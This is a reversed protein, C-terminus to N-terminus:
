LSKYKKYWSVFNKIGEDLNVKPEFGLLNRAESIDAYTEPVDGPQIPMFNIKATVGLEKELTKIFDMLEVTQSNGLNFIKFGMPKELAKIFGDVIDDVYTFNRRMKGDNYVDISEGKLMKETFIFLAMDPRGWPGYVTFFRLCTANIAYLHSYNACLLECGRKTAAYISMPTTVPNDEKFPMEKSTGYVSSTSAFLIHLIKYKKVNELVNFTGVYNTQVYVEPHELSYRVGAQAALHCVADFEGQAFVAELAVADTIDVRHVLVSSDFRKLRNEKLIPDYYDNVSDVIEVTHGIERLKLVLHSGIFGAGGTVLIKMRM